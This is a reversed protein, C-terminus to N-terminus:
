LLLRLGENTKINAIRSLIISVLEYIIIAKVDFQEIVFDILRDSPIMCEGNKSYSYVHDEKFELQLSDNDDFICAIKTKYHIVSKLATNSIKIKDIDEFIRKITYM